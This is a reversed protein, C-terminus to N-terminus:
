LKNNENYWFAKQKALSKFFLAISVFKPAHNQILHCISFALFRLAAYWLFLMKQRFSVQM